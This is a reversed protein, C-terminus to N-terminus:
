TPVVWPTRWAPMDQVQGHFVALPAARDVTAVEFQWILPSPPVLDAVREVLVKIEGVWGM